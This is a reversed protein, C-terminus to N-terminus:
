DVDFPKIESMEYPLAAKLSQTQRRKMKDTSANDEDLSIMLAKSKIKSIVFGEGRRTKDSRHILSSPRREETINKDLAENSDTSIFIKGGSKRAVKGKLSMTNREEVLKQREDLTLSQTAMFIYGIFLSTLISFLLVKPGFSKSATISQDDFPPYLTPLSNFCTQVSDRTMTLFKLSVAIVLLSSLKMMRSDHTADARVLLFYGILLASVLNLASLVNTQMKTENCINCFSRFFSAENDDAFYGSCPAILPPSSCDTNPLIRIQRISPKKCGTQYPSPPLLIGWGGTQLQYSNTGFYLTSDVLQVGDYSAKISYTFTPLLKLYKDQVLYLILLLANIVNVIFVLPYTVSRYHNLIPNHFFISDFANFLVIHFDKKQGNSKGKPPAALDADDTTESTQLIQQQQKQSLSSLDLATKITSM